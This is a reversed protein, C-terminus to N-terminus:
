RGPISPWAAAPIRSPLSARSYAAPSSPPLCASFIPGWNSACIESLVGGTTGALSLYEYGIAAGTSCGIDDLPGFAVIGHFTYGNQFEPYMTIGADFLWSPMASDDDTVAVFSKAADMRLFSQYQPYTELLRALGDNSGVEEDIHRFRPGDSCGPGGLPPPICIEGRDAVLIVHYDLSSAAIDAAFLNLNAQVTATEEDMSGSTDVFWIIDVPLTTEVAEEALAVCAGADSSTAPPPMWPPATAADSGSVPPPEMYGPPVNVCGGTAMIGAAITGVWRSWM